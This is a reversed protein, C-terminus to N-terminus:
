AASSETAAEPWDHAAHILNAVTLVYISLPISGAARLLPVMGATMGLIWVAIATLSLRDWQGFRKTVVSRAALPAALVIPIALWYSIFKPNALLMVGVFAAFTHLCAHLSRRVLALWAAWVVSGTILLTYSSKTSAHVLGDAGCVLQARLKRSSYLLSRFSASSSNRSAPAYMLDIDAQFVQM